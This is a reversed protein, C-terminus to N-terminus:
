PNVPEARNQDQERGESIALTEDQEESESITSKRNPVENKGITSERSQMEDEIITKQNVQLISLQRKWEAIEEEKVKLERASEKQMSLIMQYLHDKDSHLSNEKKTYEARLQEIRVEFHERLESERARATEKEAESRSRYENEEEQMKQQLRTIQAEAEKSKKQMEQILDRYHDRESEATRLAAIQAKYGGCIEEMASIKERAAALETELGTIQMELREKETVATEKLVSAKQLAESAIKEAEESQKKYSIVADAQTQLQARFETRIRDEAASVDKLSDIYAEVLYQAYQQFREIRERSDEATNSTERQIAYTDMLANFVRDKNGGIEASLEELRKQTEESIRYSKTEAM